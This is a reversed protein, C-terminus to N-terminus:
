NVSSICIRLPSLNTKRDLTIVVITCGINVLWHSPWTNTVTWSDLPFMLPSLYGVLGEDMMMNSEGAEMILSSKCRRATPFCLSIGPVVASTLSEHANVQVLIM